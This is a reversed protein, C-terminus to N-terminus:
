EAPKPSRPLQYHLYLEDGIQEVQKLREALEKDSVSVDLEEAKQKILENQVLYNVISAM